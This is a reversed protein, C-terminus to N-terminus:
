TRAAQLSTGYLDSGIMADITKIDKVVDDLLINRWTAFRGLSYVSHKSTMHFLLRRRTADDIPTIKGFHQKHHEIPDFADIGFAACVGEMALGSVEGRSEVILMSGTISARYVSTDPDPFYVTQFVDCNPVRARFVNIGAREFAEHHDIGLSRLTEGIPATTVVNPPRRDWPFEVRWSIRENIRDIMRAYLDEPAVFRDVPMINWISRDPLLRGLVKRSYLNALRLDPACHRKDSWVSKHVRVRRFPVGVLASVADSRFRLLARHAQAPAPAREVVLARSWAHAAILGALGAGVIIPPAATM